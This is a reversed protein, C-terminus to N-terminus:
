AWIPLRPPGVDAAGRGRRRRDAVVDGRHPDRGRPGGAQPRGPGGPSTDRPVEDRAFEVTEGTKRGDEDVLVADIPVIQTEFRGRASPRRPGCSRSWDSNTPHGSPIHRLRHRHTGGGRVPQHVRLARLLQAVGAQRSREDRQGGPSGDVDVGRRLGARHGGGGLRHPQLGPQSRAAVIRVALRRHLLGHDPRGRPVALRHPTINMGQAGVQDICGGVVQDVDGSAIGVRSLCEMQVPGLIDAPHTNALSGNRKGVASRVAEVIVVDTM